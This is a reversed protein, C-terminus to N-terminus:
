LKIVKLVLNKYSISVAITAFCNAIMTHRQRMNTTLVLAVIVGAEVFTYIIMLIHYWAVYVFYSEIGLLVEEHEKKALKEPISTTSCFTMDGFMTSILMGQFCYVRNITQFIGDDGCSFLKTISCHNENDVSYQLVYTPFTRLDNSCNDCRIRSIALKPRERLFM